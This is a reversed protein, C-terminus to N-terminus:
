ANDHVYIATALAFVLLLLWAAALWGEATRLDSSESCSECRFRHKRAHSYLPSGVIGGLIWAIVSIRPQGIASLRLSDKHHCRPCQLKSDWYTRPRFYYFGTAAFCLALAFVSIHDLIHTPEHARILLFRASPLCCLSYSSFHLSHSESSM